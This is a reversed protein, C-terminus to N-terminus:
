SNVIRDLKEQMEEWGPYGFFSPIKEWIEKRRNEISKAVSSCCNKCAHKLHADVVDRGRTHFFFPTNLSSLGFYRAKRSCSREELCKSKGMDGKLHEPLDSILKSVNFMLEDRGKFLVRLCEPNASDADELLLEMAMNSCFFFLIPLLADIGTKYAALLLPLGVEVQYECFIPDDDEIISDMEDLCM